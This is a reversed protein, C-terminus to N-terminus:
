LKQSQIIQEEIIKAAKGFKFIGVDMGMIGSLDKVHRPFAIGIGWINNLPKENDGENLRLNTGNYNLDSIEKISGNSNIEIPISNRNWGVMAAIKTCEGLHKEYIEKELEPTEMYHM